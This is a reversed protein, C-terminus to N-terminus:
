TEEVGGGGGTRAVGGHHLLPGDALEAHIGIYGFGQVVLKVVLALTAGEFELSQYPVTKRCLVVVSDCANHMLKTVFVGISDVLRM